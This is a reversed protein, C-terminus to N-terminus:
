PKKLAGGVPLSAKVNTMTVRATALDIEAGDATVWGAGRYLRVGGRLTLHQKALDLEFEPSEGRVGKVDAVIGGTGKAWSVRPGGADYRVEIKPCKLSLDTGRTLVVKGSLTATQEKTDVELLDASIEINGPAVAPLSAAPAPSPSPSAGQGRTVRTAVLSLAGFSAAMLLATGVRRRARPHSGVNSM